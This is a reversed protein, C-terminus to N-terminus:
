DLDLWATCTRVVSIFNLLDLRSSSHVYLRIIHCVTNNNYSCICKIFPNIKPYNDWDTEDSAFGTCPDGSINWESSAKLGWRGLITNLAAVEIPDTKPAQQAEVMRWSWVLVVVWVLLQVSVGGVCRRRRQM